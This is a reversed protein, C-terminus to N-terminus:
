WSSRLAPVLAFLLCVIDGRAIRVRYVCDQRSQGITHFHERGFTSGPTLIKKGVERPVASFDM